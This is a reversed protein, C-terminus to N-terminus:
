LNNWWLSIEECAAIVHQMRRKHSRPASELQNKFIDHSFCMTLDSVQNETLIYNEIYDYLITAIIKQSEKNLGGKTIHFKVAGIHIESNVQKTIILDPYISVDVGTIDITTTYSKCESFEFGILPSYDSNLVLKLVELSLKNDSKQFETKNPKIKIANIADTIVKKDNGRIFYEQIAERAESYRTVIFSKPDKCDKVIQKRRLSNAECYEGLKNISIRPKNKSM